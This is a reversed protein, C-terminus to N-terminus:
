KNGLMKKMEAWPRTNAVDTATLGARQAQLIGYRMCDLGSTKHADTSIVIPIGYRKAAACHIDNLDLRNPNANLELFKGHKAAAEMVAELDVDYPERRNILRGTPHAIVCVHPNALADVIRKTIQQRPQNQGYHISGIVWDAESLVEDDLDMGGAELIDCEIGKLVTMGQTQDNLKDIQEWQKRLRDANLGNAMSTRKSHDTIAIYTLGRQQAAAVMEELTAKGDTATTHMHLDGRIDTLEILQPLKGQEAWEFEERDERLQPPFWPLDLTQYVEQESKGALYQDDRYVGYENIKLGRDKAMGRLVVNHDKSGTFYLLAAGYSEGPVVRLDVQMGGDLRVSMKTDGRLMVEDVGDYKAFHDMVPAPDDAEVLLDLDGVTERGRRYSGAAEFQKLGPCAAFHARLLQVVQDAVYWLTREDSAAAIALGKLLKEETKAGFGKLHRVQQAECAEKLQDLSSVGLEKHMAAAKKPGVGPVRMITLVGSPIRELLEELVSSKGYEIIETVYEALDKGIGKIETLSQDDAIMSALPTPHDGITRAANRYARVKFPNAGDFELLDAITELQGAIQANTIM